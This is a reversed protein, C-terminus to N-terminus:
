TLITLFLLLTSQRDLKEGQFLKRGERILKGLHVQHAEKGM